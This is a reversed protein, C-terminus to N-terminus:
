LGVAARGSFKAHPLSIELQARICCIYYNRLPACPCEAELLPCRVAAYREDIPCIWCALARICYRDEPLRSSRVFAQSSGTGSSGELRPGGITDTPECISRGVDRNQRITIM